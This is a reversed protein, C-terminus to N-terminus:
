PAEERLFRAEEALDVANKFRGIAFDDMAEPRSDGALDGVSFVAYENRKVHYVWVSSGDCVLVTQDFTGDTNDLNPDAGESRFMNPAKFAMLLRGPVATGTSTSILDYEKVARYTEGVKGLIEVVDPHAQALAGRAVALFGFLVMRRM